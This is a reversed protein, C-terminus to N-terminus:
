HRRRGSRGLVAGGLVPRGGAYLARRAALVLARDAEETGWVRLRRFCPLTRVAFRLVPTFGIGPLTRAGLDDISGIWLRQIGDARAAAAMGLLVERFRGQRRSPELTLCNWIYAEGPGPRIELGLEGIWEPGASLWGYAVVQDDRCCAFARCGRARRGAVLDGEAAMAARLATDAAPALEAM